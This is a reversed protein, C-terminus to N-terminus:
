NSMQGDKPTNQQAILSDSDGVAPSPETATLLKGEQQKGQLQSCFQPISRTLVASAPPLGNTRVLLRATKDRRLDPQAVRNM